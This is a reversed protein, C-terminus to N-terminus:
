AARIADLDHPEYPRILRCELEACSLEEPSIWPLAEAVRAQADPHQKSGRRRAEAIEFGTRHFIALYTTATLFNLYRVPRGKKDALHRDLDRKPHLLHVYPTKFDTHFDAGIHSTFCRTRLIMEGGPRLLEYVRNLTAEVQEPRMYQLVSTCLVLDLGGDAMDRNQALDGAHFELREGYARWDWESQMTDWLPKLDVGIVKRPQFRDLLYKPLYGWSCGLDLVTQGDVVPDFSGYLGDWLKAAQQEGWALTSKEALPTTPIPTDGPKALSRTLAQRLKTLM